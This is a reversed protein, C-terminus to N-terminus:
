WLKYRLEVSYLDAVGIGHIAVGYSDGQLEIMCEYWSWLWNMDELVREEAWADM